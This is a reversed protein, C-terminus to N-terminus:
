WKLKIKTKEIQKMPLVMEESGNVLTLTKENVSKLTGTSEKAGEDTQYFVRVQRGINKRYQWLEKLPYDIGPSSVDLRYHGNIPDYMDLTDAIERSLGTIQEMTIGTDTDALISLVQNNRSGRLKIEVLYYNLREFIPLILERIKEEQPTM